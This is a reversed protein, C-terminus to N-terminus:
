QIFLLSTASRPLPPNNRVGEEEESQKRREFNRKPDKKQVRRFVRKSTTPSQHFHPAHLPTQQPASSSLSTLTVSSLSLFVVQTFYGRNSSEPSFLSFFHTKSGWFCHSLPFYFCSRSSSFSLDCHVVSNCTFTIFDLAFKSYWVFSNFTHLLM